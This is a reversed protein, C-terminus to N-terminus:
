PYFKEFGAKCSDPFDIFIGAQRHDVMRTPVYRIYDTIHDIDTVGIGSEKAAQELCDAASEASDFGTAVKAKGAVTGDKLIVTKIYKAGMDIGATIM